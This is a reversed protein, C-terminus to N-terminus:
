PKAFREVDASRCFHSPIPLLDSMMYPLERSGFQGLGESWGENPWEQPRTKQVRASVVSTILYGRYGYGVPQSFGNNPV